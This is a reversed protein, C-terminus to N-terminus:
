QKFTENNVAVELARLFNLINEIQQKIAEEDLAVYIKFFKGKNSMFNVHVKEATFRYLKSISKPLDKPSIDCKERLFSTYEELSALKSDSDTFNFGTGISIKFKPISDLKKAMIEYEKNGDKRLHFYFISDNIIFKRGANWELFKNVLNIKSQTSYKVQLTDHFIIDIQRDFKSESKRDILFVISGVVVIVILYINEKIFPPVPLTTYNILKLVVISIVALVAILILNFLVSIASAGFYLMIKEKM